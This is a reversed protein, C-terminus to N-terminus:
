MGHKTCDEKASCGMGRYNLSTSLADTKLFESTLPSCGSEGGRM